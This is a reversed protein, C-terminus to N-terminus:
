GGFSQRRYADLAMEDLRIGDRRAQVERERLLRSEEAIEYRKLEQFATTVAEEADRLENALMELTELLKIRQESTAQLYAPFSARISLDFEARRSEATVAQALAGIRGRTTETLTQLEAVRRRREDLQWRNLRILTALRSM